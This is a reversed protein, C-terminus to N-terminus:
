QKYGGQRLWEQMAKGMINPKGGNASAFAEAFFEASNTNGYSSMAKKVDARSMGPNQKVAINIIQKNLNGIRNYYASFLRDNFDDNDTISGNHWQKLLENYDNSIAKSIIKNHMLHGYEHTLSIVGRMSSDSDMLYGMQQSYETDDILKTPNGFYDANLNLIQNDPADWSSPQVQATYGVESDYDLRVSSSDHIIGYKSELNILQVANDIMLQENFTKGDSLVYETFSDIQIGMGRMAAIADQINSIQKASTSSSGRRGGRSGKAM